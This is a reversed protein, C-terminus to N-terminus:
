ENLKEAQKDVDCLFLTDLNFNPDSGTRRIMDVATQDLMRDALSERSNHFTHDIKVEPLDIVKNAKEYIRYTVVDAGHNGFRADMVFGLKNAAEVSVIPFAAYPMNVKDISNDNTRGYVVGEGLKNKALTDWGKQTLLCDDNLVFVFKGSVKELFNNLRIHLNPIRTGSSITLFPFQCSEELDKYSDYDPDDFDIGAFVEFPLECTDSLSECLTLLKDPRSRSVLIISFEIM